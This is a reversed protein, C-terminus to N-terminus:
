AEEMRNGLTTLVERAQRETVCHVVADDAYLEFQVGPYTRALWMDFAYHMFLNALVPSAASGQPGRDRKQLTGDPLQLPAELWRQVYLKVWVADAHAEVVKVILDWRVTAHSGAPDPRGDPGSRM